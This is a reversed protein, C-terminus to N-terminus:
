GFLIKLTNQWILLYDESLPYPVIVDYDILFFGEPNVIINGCTIDGLTYGLKEGVLCANHFVSLVELKQQTTLITGTKHIQTPYVLDSGNGHLDTGLIFYTKYGDETFGAFAPLSWINLINELKIRWRKDLPNSASLPDYRKFVIDGEIWLYKGAGKTYETRNNITTSFM